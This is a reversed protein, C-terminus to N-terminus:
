ARRALFDELIESGYRGTFFVTAGKLIDRRSDGLCEFKRMNIGGKM